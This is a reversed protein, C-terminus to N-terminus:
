EVPAENMVMALQFSKEQNNRPRPARTNLSSIEATHVSHHAPLTMNVRKLRETWMPCRLIYLKSESKLSVILGHGRLREPKGGFSSRQPELIRHASRRGM